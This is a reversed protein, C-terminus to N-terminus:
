QKTNSVLYGVTKYNFFCIQPLLHHDYEDINSIDRSNTTTREPGYSRADTAFDRTIADNRMMSLRKARGMVLAAALSM